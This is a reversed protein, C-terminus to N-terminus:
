FMYNISSKPNPIKDLDNLTYGQEEEEYKEAIKEM